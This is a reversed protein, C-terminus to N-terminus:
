PTAFTSVATMLTVVAARSPYLPDDVAGVTFLSITGAAGGDLIYILRSSGTPVGDTDAIATAEVLTTPLGDITLEVQERVEWSAPDVAAAVTDAYPDASVDIMVATALTAPDEPVSIEEPDFYRCALEAPETLTFWTAPYVITAVDALACEATEPLIIPPPIPVSPAPTPAATPAATPTATPAATPEASPEASPAPTETAEAGETPEATPEPTEAPAEEVTPRVLAVTLSGSLDTLLMTDGQRDLLAAGQLAELFATEQTMIEDPCAMRTTALAGVRVANGNTGYTGSFSNCGAFGGVSALGFVVELETGELPASVSNPATAFSDVEWTGLLPNRPSADFVLVPEGIASFITLTDRQASFFRSSQLASLYATEFAMSEEDCAMLTVSPASILLTRGGERYLADYRNCGSLGAVRHRASFEADAYETEPVLVLDEGQLYSRLIWEMGELQGGSAALPISGAPTASCAGVLTAAVVLLAALRRQIM